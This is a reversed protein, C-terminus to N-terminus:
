FLSAPVIIIDGPEVLVEKDKGRGQIIGDVNVWIDKRSASNKIVKVKHAAFDTFGGGIVIAKLVNIYGDLPYEGPRNVEGYVFFVNNYSITIQPYRIFEVLKAEMDIALGELSKGEAKIEKILPFSINGEYNVTIKKALDEHGTVTIYLLDGKKIQREGSEDKIVGDNGFLPSIFSIFLFFAAAIIRINRFNYPFIKSM